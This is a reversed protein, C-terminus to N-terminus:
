SLSRKEIPECTPTYDKCNKASCKRLEPHKLCTTRMFIMKSYKCFTCFPHAERYALIECDDVNNQIM